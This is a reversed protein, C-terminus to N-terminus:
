GLKIEERDFPTFDEPSSGFGMVGFKMKFFDREADVACVCGIREFCSDTGRSVPEML